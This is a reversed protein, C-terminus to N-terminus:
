IWPALPRGREGRHAAHRGSCAGQVWNVSRDREGILPLGAAPSDRILPPQQLRYATLRPWLERRNGGSSSHLEHVATLGLAKREETSRTTAEHPGLPQWLTARTPSSCGASVASARARTSISLDAPRRPPCGCAVGEGGLRPRRAISTIRTPPALLRCWERSHPAPRSCDGRVERALRRSGSDVLCSGAGNHPHTAEAVAGSLLGRM